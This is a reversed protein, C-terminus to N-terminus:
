PSAYGTREKPQALSSHSQIRRVIQSTVFRSRMTEDATALAGTISGVLSRAEALLADDGDLTLLVDLASLLLAPDGTRRAFLIARRANAAAEHTRHLEGLARARTILALAEYKPRGLERSQEAATAAEEIALNQDQGALALEARAQSLRVRFIGRHLPHVAAAATTDKLLGEAAGPNGIRALTLLLDIGSSILPLAFNAGAAMARAERQRAEAGEFDFVSLHMGAEFSIVRALPGIVGYRRGFERAEAFVERAQMYQGAASLSTALHPLSFMTFLTDHATRAIDAAKRGLHVAEESRGLLYLGLTGFAYSMTPRGPALEIARSHQVMSGELDGSSFKCQGIIRIANAILDSRQTFQEALRLADSAMNSVSVIEGSLYITAEALWLLLDCRLETANADLYQIASEFEQKASRWQAIAGFARGRRAHLDCRRAVM